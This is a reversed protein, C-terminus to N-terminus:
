WMWSCRGRRSDVLRSRVMPSISSRSTSALGVLRAAVSVALYSAAEMGQDGVGVRVSFRPAETVGDRAAAVSARLGTASQARRPPHGVLDRRRPHHCRRLTTFARRCRIGLGIATRIVRGAEDGSMRGTRQVAATAGSRAPSLRRWAGASRGTV